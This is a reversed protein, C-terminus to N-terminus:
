RWAEARNSPVQMRSLLKRGELNIESLLHHKSLADTPQTTFFEQMKLAAGTVPASVSAAMRLHTWRSPRVHGHIISTPQFAKVLLCCVLIVAFLLFVM